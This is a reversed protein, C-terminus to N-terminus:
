YAFSTKGEGGTKRRDSLLPRTFVCWRPLRSRFFALPLAFHCLFFVRSATELARGFLLPVVFWLFFVCCGRVDVAEGHSFKSVRGEAGREKKLKLLCEGGGWLFSVTMHTTVVLFLSASSYVVFWLSVRSCPVGSYLSDDRREGTKERKSVM